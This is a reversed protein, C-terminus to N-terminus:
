THYLGLKVLVKKICTNYNELFFRVIKITEYGQDEEMADPDTTVAPRTQRLLTIYAHFIDAKM